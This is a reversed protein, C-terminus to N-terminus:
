VASSTTPYGDETTFRFNLLNFTGFTNGNYQTDLLYITDELCRTLLFVTGPLGTVASNNPAGTFIVNQGKKVASYIESYKKNLTYKNAMPDKDVEVILCLASAFNDNVEFKQVKENIKLSYTGATETILAYSASGDQIFLPYNVFSPMGTSEDFEGYESGFPTSRHPLIYETGNFVVKLDQTPLEGGAEFRGISYGSGEDYVTTVEGDFLNVNEVSYIGGGTAIGEEMHNLKEETIVDGTAWTQKEYM